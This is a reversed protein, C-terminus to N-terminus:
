PRRQRLGEGLLPATEGAGAAADHEDHEKREELRVDELAAVRRPAAAEEARKKEREEAVRRLEARAREIPGYVEILGLTKEPIPRGEELYRLSQQWLSKAKKGSRSIAFAVIENRPVGHRGGMLNSVLLHTAEKHGYYSARRLLKLALPVDVERKDREIDGFLTTVRKGLLKEKGRTYDEEAAIMEAATPFHRTIPVRVARGLPDQYVDFREAETATQGKQAGLGVIMMVSIFVIKRLYTM